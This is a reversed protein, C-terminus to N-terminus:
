IYGFKCIEPLFVNINASSLPHTVHNICKKQDEIPLTFSGLKMMTPKTHCIKTLPPGKQGGGGWRHAAGFLGMRFLTLYFIYILTNLPM